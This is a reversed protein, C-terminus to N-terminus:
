AVAAAPEIPGYRVLADFHEVASRDDDLIGRARQPTLRRAFRRAVVAKRADGDRALQWTAEDLLLAGEALDALLYAFRRAHLLQIDADSRELHAVADKADTLTAAVADVVPALVPGPDAGDLAREVRALLAEHAGESRMARRVDLCCINETGEWITHCQADRYQRAM